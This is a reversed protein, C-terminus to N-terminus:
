SKNKQNQSDKDSIPNIHFKMPYQNFALSQNLISLVTKRHIMKLLILPITLFALFAVILVITDERLEKFNDFTFFSIEQGISGIVFNHYMQTKLETGSATTIMGSFTESVSVNTSNLGNPYTTVQENSTTTPATIKTGSNQTSHLQILYNANLNAVISFVVILVVM